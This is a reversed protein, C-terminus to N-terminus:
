PVPAPPNQIGAARRSPVSANPTPTAARRVTPASRVSDGRSFRSPLEEDLEVAVSEDDM